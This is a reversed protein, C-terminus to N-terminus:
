KIEKNLDVGIDKTEIYGLKIKSKKFCTYDPRGIKKISRNEESLKLDSFLNEIFNQFDHRYTLETAQGTKHIKVIRKFYDNFLEWLM